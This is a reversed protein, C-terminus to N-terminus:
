QKYELGGLGDRIRLINYSCSYTRLLIKNNINNCDCINLYTSPDVLKIRLDKRHLRSFNLTGSPESLQPNLAFSFNYLNLNTGSNFNDYMQIDSLFVANKMNTLETNNVMIVAEDMLHDDTDFGYYGKYKLNFSTTYNDLVKANFVDERQLVWFIYKTPGYFDLPFTYQSHGNPEEFTDQTGINFTEILTYIDSNMFLKKEQHDLFINKTFLEIKDIGIKVQENYIENLEVISPSPNGSADFGNVGPVPSLGNSVNYSNIICSNADKLKIDLYIESNRLACLPLYSYSARSFFLPIYLLTNVNKTNTRGVEFSGPYYKNMKYFSQKKSYNNLLENILFILEGNLTEIEQGGIFFKIEEIINFGIGNVYSTFQPELTTSGDYNVFPTKRVLDTFKIYLYVGGLLDGNSLLKVKIRSGFDMSKIENDAVKYYDTAFNTCRNFVKKFHTMQPNGYLIEEEPGKAELQIINGITM